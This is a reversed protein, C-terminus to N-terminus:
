KEIGLGWRAQHKAFDDRSIDLINRLASEMRAFQASKTESEQSSLVTDEKILRITTRPGGDEKNIYGKEELKDLLAHVTSNSKYGLENALERTTPSYGKRQIFSEISELLVMQKKTLKEKM